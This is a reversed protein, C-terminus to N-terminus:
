RKMSFLTIEVKAERGDRVVTLIAKDGEKFKYMERKLYNMNEVKVDNIKTIVDGPRLNAKEAPSNPLIELVIVGEDASLEIGLAAEYREVEVGQIGILIPEFDGEKIVQKLIPKVVNIPISFGLGEASQIKATNIGIVEGKNNLLPGGSNGPNISADTQILDEIINYADVKITRNLGSIIGSTVTRQFDLGLPNGIAVALQGVELTDSDGLEAVPLGKADVKVVALDISQDYWLVRGVKKSGDEFLVTIKKANGDGVVHSNTLIYGNSDVIVGSGVGEVDRVWFFERVQEVTTIGVVSSITKKAVASVATIDDKTTISIQQNNPVSSKYIEPMPLIKGYLYNPAIYSSVLGGILAAILAVLFYSFFGGRRKPPKRQVVPRDVFYDNEFNRDDM